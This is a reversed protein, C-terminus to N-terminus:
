EKNSSNSKSRGAIIKSSKGLIQSSENNSSDFNSRGAM